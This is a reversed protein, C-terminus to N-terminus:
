PLEPDYSTLSGLPDLMASGSVTVLETPEGITKTEFPVLYGSQYMRM